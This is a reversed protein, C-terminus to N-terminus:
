YETHQPDFNCWGNSWEPYVISEETNFTVDEMALPTGELDEPYGNFSSHRFTVQTHARLQIAPGFVGLLSQNDPNLSGGTIYGTTNRFEANGVAPGYLTVYEFVPTSLPTADSNTDNNSCEFGHSDSVDAIRPHRIGLLYRCTGRYGNDVDFDDDWCHYAVLHSANVTGGFWEFADDNSYSVQVHDVTTGSGVSGFTVGNIEQNKKFPLGAFEVRVYSLVGSNDADNSGGHMTRPGGEIQMLQQNNRALGCIILGGWDGPRRQGAPMESTFVIPQDATGQAIIKGGPEVILAANTEKDGKIITGAEIILTSGQTVYCWGKLLYTGKRIVQYETIDFAQEGNGIINGPYVITNDRQDDESSSCATAGICILGIWLLHKSKM